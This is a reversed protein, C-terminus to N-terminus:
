LRLTDPHPATSTAPKTRVAASPQIVVGNAYLEDCSIDLEDNWVVAYGGVDVRVAAFLEPNETLPQFMPWREALKKIDYLKVAGNEFQARLVFGGLPKVSNLKHFM